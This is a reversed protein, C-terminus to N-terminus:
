RRLEEVLYFAVENNTGRTIGPGRLHRGGQLEAMVSPPQWEPTFHALVEFRYRAAPLPGSDGILPPSDFHGDVVSMQAMALSGRGEAERIAVQLRTQDPLHIVGKVRLAGNSMRYADFSELLAAGRTLGTTDPLRELTM